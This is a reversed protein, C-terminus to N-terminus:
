YFETLSKSGQVRSCDNAISLKARYKAVQKDVKGVIKRISEFDLIVNNFFGIEGYIRKYGEDYAFAAEEKSNYYGLSISIGDKMIWSGWYRQCKSVGKFGSTNSVPAKMNAKNVSHTVSRLNGDQNNLGNSDIHDTEFGIIRELQWNSVEAFKGQTLPILKM